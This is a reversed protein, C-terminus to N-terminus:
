RLSDWFSSPILMYSRWWVIGSIGITVIWGAVDKLPQDPYSTAAGHTNILGLFKHTGVFFFAPIAISIVLLLVPEPKPTFCLAMIMIWVVIAAYVGHFVGADTPKHDHVHAENGGIWFVKVCFTIAAIAIVFALMARWIDWQQICLLMTLAVVGPFICFDIPMAYHRDFSLAHLGRAQLQEVTLYKDADASRIQLYVLLMLLAMMGLSAILRAIM